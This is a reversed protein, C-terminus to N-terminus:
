SISKGLFSQQPVDDFAVKSFYESRLISYTNLDGHVGNRFFKMRLCGELKMGAKELVKASAANTTLAEASVRVIEPVQFAAQLVAKAAETAYGHGWYKKALHYFLGFEVPSERCAGVIGILNQGTFIAFPGIDKRSLSVRMMYEIRQKCGEEDHVDRVYTNRVVEEDTWIPLLLPAYSLEVPRLELRETKIM